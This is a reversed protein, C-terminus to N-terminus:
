SIESDSVDQIIGSALIENAEAQPHLALTQSILSNLDPVARLQIQGDVPGLATSIVVGVLQSKSAAFNVELAYQGVPVKNFQYDVFILNPLHQEFRVFGTVSHGASARMRAEAFVPLQSVMCYECVSYPTM